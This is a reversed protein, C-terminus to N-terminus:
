AGIAELPFSLRLEGHIQYLDAQDFSEPWRNYQKTFSDIDADPYLAYFKTDDVTFARTVVSFYRQAGTKGGAPSANNADGRSSWVDIGFVADVLNGRLEAKTDKDYDLINDYGSASFNSEEYTVSIYIKQLPTKGTFNPFGTRVESLTDGSLASEIYSKLAAEATNIFDQETFRGM